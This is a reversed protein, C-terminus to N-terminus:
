FFVAALADDLRGVALLEQALQPKEVADAEADDSAEFVEVRTPQELRLDDFVAYVDFSSATGARRVRAHVYDYADSADLALVDSHAKLELCQQRRSVLANCYDSM